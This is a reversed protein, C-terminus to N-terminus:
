IVILGISNEIGAAARQDAGDDDFLHGYRDFTIMISAHGMIHQVRKALLGQEIFLSAAVHRLAHFHYKPKAYWAQGGAVPRPHAYLVKDGALGLKVSLPMWYNSYIQGPLVPKRARTTFVLDRDNRVCQLKWTKLVNALVPAMPISRNGADSKPRVEEGWRNMSRRVRILRDEFDIDAWKLGSIEGARMGTLVAVHMIPRAMGQAAALLDRVEDRTPIDIQDKSHAPMEPRADKIINQSIYGLRQAHTLASSLVQLAHKMTDASTPAKEDYVCGNVWEQVMPASLRTLRVAGLYPLVHNKAYSHYGEVTTRKMSDKRHRRDCNQLFLKLAERVTISASDAVHVGRECEDEIKTRHRDADKKQAFTKLRRKGGLDTYRVVWAAGEVGDHTWTRKRVTAM